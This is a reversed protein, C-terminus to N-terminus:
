KDYEDEYDDLYELYKEDDEEEVEEEDTAEELIDVDEKYEDESIVEDEISLDDEELDEFPDDLGADETDMADAESLDGDDKAQQEMLRAQAEEEKRIREELMEQHKREEDKQAEIRKDMEEDSVEKYENYYSGDKEWLDIPQNIKLDWTNAGTYVFKASASLEAYFANLVTHSETLELAKREVVEDFLDYLDYPKKAEKLVIEAINILSLENFNVM